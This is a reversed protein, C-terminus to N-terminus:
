APIRGRQRSLSTLIQSCVRGGTGPDASLGNAAALAAHRDDAEGGVGVGDGAQEVLMDVQEEDAVADGHHQM